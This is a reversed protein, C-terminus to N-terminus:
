NRGLLRLLQQEAEERLRRELEERAAAETTTADFQTGLADNIRTRAETELRAREADLRAKAEAELRAREVALEQEALYALDPRIVPASWPGTVLIPVRIAAGDGGTAVGPTLRYNLQQAGLDVQGQGTVQGWPATLALDGNSLVGDAITFGATVGDFVTQAGAAQHSPDLTRIMGALDLGRVAGAGLALSGEGSLSQMLRAMSNGVALFRLQASGTAELRDFGALEALLPSLAADRLRLDGGLSLGNRGNVVFQGALTGGSLGIRDIELVLRGRDLGARLDVPGLALGGTDLRGLGLALEADVAFLGSVDMPRTSWGGGGADAGSASQPLSLQPASLKGRVLPREAGPLLDLDLAIETQDLSLRGSRLHASGESALTVQGSLALRDRGLGAPLDPMSQGLLSLIPAPDTAEVAIMGELAPFLSVQGDFRASGGAWGLSLAAASLGGDTLLALDAADLTLEVPTGNVRARGQLTLRGAGTLAMELEAATLVLTRGTARDLYRLAGQTVRASTISFGPLRTGTRAGTTAPEASPTTWSERGGVARVLTIDPAVLTIDDIQPMDSLIAAWPVRVVLAQAAILPGETVWDPNAVSIGEARVGLHPWLTPRVVGTVAVTRGLAQGLRDAALTAIRDAPMLVLLGLGLAALVVVFGLLRIIWRM